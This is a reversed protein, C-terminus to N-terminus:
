VPQVARMASRRELGSWCAGGLDGAYDRDKVAGLGEGARRSEGSEM